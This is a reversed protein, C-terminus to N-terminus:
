TENYIWDLPLSAKQKLKVNYAMIHQQSIAVLRDDNKSFIRTELVMRDDLIKSKKVGLIVTDPFSVPRIYKCDQWGVIPSIDDERTLKGGNLQMIYEIRASEVWKIYVVNNVHYGTDINRWEVPIELRVQFDDM